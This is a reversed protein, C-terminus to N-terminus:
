SGLPVYYQTGRKMSQIQRVLDDLDEKRKVFDIDTTTVVLLPTETYHFFFHNYAEAVDELYNRPIDREYDRGRTTMRKYLAEMDAQLYIVFDPKPLRAELLAHIKEYLALEHDDLTLYAFIRDRPFLYDSILRQRFLDSQLLEQQQRYRTLLFYLQTQFAYRRMDRYFDKLFPNEEVAELVARAQLRQALLKALSTKGVGIPGEVAVYRPEYVATM